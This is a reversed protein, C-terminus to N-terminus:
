PHNGIEQSACQDALTRLREVLEQLEESKRELSAGLVKLALPRLVRDVALQAREKESGDAGPVHAYAAKWRDVMDTFVRFDANIM